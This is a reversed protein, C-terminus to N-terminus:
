LSGGRADRREGPLRSRREGQALLEVLKPTFVVGKAEAFERFTRVANREAGRGFLPLAAVQVPTNPGPEDFAGGKVRLVPGSGSARWTTPGWSAELVQSWPYTTTSGRSEVVVAEATLRVVDGRHRVVSWVLSVAAAAAYGIVVEAPIPRWWLLLGALAALCVAGALARGTGSARLTREDM